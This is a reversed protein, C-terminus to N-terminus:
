RKAHIDEDFQVEDIVLLDAKHGRICRPVRSTTPTVRVVPSILREVLAKQCVTLPEGRLLECFTIIDNPTPM